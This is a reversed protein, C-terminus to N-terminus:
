RRGEEGGEKRGAMERGKDREGYGDKRRRKTRVEM